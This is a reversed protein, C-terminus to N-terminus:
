KFENFGVNYATEDALKLAKAFQGNSLLRKAKQAVQKSRTSCPVTLYILQEATSVEDLMEEYRDRKSKM